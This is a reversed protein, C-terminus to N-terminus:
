MDQVLDLLESPVFGFIEDYLDFMEQWRIAEKPDKVIHDTIFDNYKDNEKEYERTYKVVVDPEKLGEKLYRKYYEILIAIFVIKINKVIVDLINILDIKDEPNTM